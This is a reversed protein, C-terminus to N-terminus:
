LMKSTRLDKGEKKKKSAAIQTLRFLEDSHEKDNKQLYEYEIREQAVIGINERQEKTYLKEKYYRPLAAKKGDGIPLYCREVLSALHWGRVESSLYNSGLGKSMLSFERVRGFLNRERKSMYKLTYGISAGRVDGFHVAGMDWAKDIEDYTSNFIIAHYHPRQKNEGYEGVAYYKVGKGSLKRLRVFFRQVDYKCLSMLGIPRMSCMGCPCVKNKASKKRKSIDKIRCDGPIPVTSPHYTLTVFLASSCREAEKKLRFSWSSVRRKLCDVCKGCPFALGKKDKFPFMCQAM